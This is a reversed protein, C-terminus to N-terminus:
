HRHRSRPRSSSDLPSRRDRVNIFRRPTPSDPVANAIGVYPNMIPTKANTAYPKMRISMRPSSSLAGVADNSIRGSISPSLRLEAASIKKSNRVNEHPHAASVPTSAILM